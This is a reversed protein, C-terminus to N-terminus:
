QPIRWSFPYFPTNKLSAFVAVPTGAYKINGNELFLIQDGLAATEMQQSCRIVYPVGSKRLISEIGGVKKVDLHSDYEDLILVRPQHVLAAALAVLIKEGGSLERMFRRKLHLIGMSEMQADVLETTKDCPVQRFRLASAIEDSVRNFLINRDPFENVWGTETERPLNGDIHITGTEPLHIGTCAKLLTTKGSGNPGIVSTIGEPIVLSDISLNKCRVHDFTIM